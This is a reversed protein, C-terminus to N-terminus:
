CEGPTIETGTKASSPNSYHGSSYVWMYCNPKGSGIVKLTTEDAYIVKDKLLIDAMRGYIPKLLDSVEFQIRCMTQRSIGVGSLFDNNEMRYYPLGLVMKGNILEAALSPTAVSHPFFDRPDALAQIVTDKTRDAFKKRIIKTVKHRAPTSEVKYSVDEGMEVLVHGEAKLREYEEPFLVETDDVHKELWETNFSRSGRKRGPKGREERRCGEAENVVQEEPEDKMTETKPVFIRAREVRRKEQIAELEKVKEELKEQLKRFKAELADYDRKQKAIIADREALAKKLAKIEEAYDMNKGHEM